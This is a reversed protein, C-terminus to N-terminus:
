SPREPYRQIGASGVVTWASHRRKAQRSAGSTLVCLKVAVPAESTACGPAFKTGTTHEPTGNHARCPVPTSTRCGTASMLSRRENRDGSQRCWSEAHATSEDPYGQRGRREPPQLAPTSCDAVLSETRTRVQSMKSASWTEGKEDSM